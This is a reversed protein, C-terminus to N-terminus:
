QMTFIGSADTFTLSDGPNLTLASGYDYWGILNGNAATSNYLVAYRFPGITGTAGTDTLTNTALTLTAIGGSQSYGNNTPVMGGAVYGNGAAIETINAIVTNSASPASNTLMLKLTDSNLNHIKNGVDAVFCNFKNYSVSAM